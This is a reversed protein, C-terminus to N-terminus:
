LTDANDIDETIDIEKFDQKTESKEKILNQNDETNSNLGRIFSLVDKANKMIRNFMPVYEYRRLESKYLMILQIDQQTIQPKNMIECVAKTLSNLYKERYNSM